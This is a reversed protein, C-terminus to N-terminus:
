RAGWGPTTGAADPRIRDLVGLGPAATDGDHQHVEVMELLDVVRKTVVETVLEQSLDARTKGGYEAFVVDHRAQTTVLEADQQGIDGVLADREPHSRTQQLLELPRHHHFPQREVHRARDADRQVRLLARVGLREQAAGIDRHVRGLLRAPAELQVGRLHILVARRLECQHAPHPRGEVVALHDHEVLGLHAQGIAEDGPGLRQDAPMVGFVAQHRGVLEDREHLLRHQQSRQRREDERRHELLPPRPGVPPDPQRNGDVDRGSAQQVDLQGLLDDLQQFPPLNGMREERQLEGLVEQHGLRTARGGHQVLKGGDAHRSDISSKPM